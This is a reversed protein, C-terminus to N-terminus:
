NISHNTDNKISLSNIYNNISNFKETKLNKKLIKCVREM